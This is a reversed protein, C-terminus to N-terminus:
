SSHVIKYESLFEKFKNNGGKSLFLIQKSTWTDIQLSRIISIQLGFSRHVGACKLCLFIGNNMSAWKPNDAGCDFCQNNGEISLIEQISPDAYQEM